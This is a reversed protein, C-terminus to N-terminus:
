CKNINSILINKNQYFYKIDCITYNQNYPDYLPTKTINLLYAYEGSQTKSSNIVYYDITSTINGTSLKFLFTINLSNVPIPDSVTLLIHTYNLSYVSQVFNPSSIVVSMATGYSYKLYLIIFIIATAVVASVIISFELTTQSKM